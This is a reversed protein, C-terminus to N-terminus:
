RRLRRTAIGYVSSADVSSLERPTTAVLGIQDQGGIALGFAFGRADLDQDTDVRALLAGQLRWPLNWRLGLAYGESAGGFRGLASLELRPGAPAVTVGPTVSFDLATGRVVPQGINAATAGITLVRGVALSLGLDYGWANASGRYWAAAFGAALSGSAGAAGIRYTHGVGTDFDDYQYALSLGRSGFGVSGQGLRSEGDTPHLVMVEAYISANRTVAAGAPNIWVARADRVDTPYLYAASRNAAVQTVGSSTVGLLGIGLAVARIM